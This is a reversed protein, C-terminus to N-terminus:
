LEFQRPTLEELYFVLGNNTEESETILDAPDVVVTVKDSFIVCGDPTYILAM